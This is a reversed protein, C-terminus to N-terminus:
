PPWTQYRISVFHVFKVSSRGYISGVSNRNMQSLLKLPSSKLFDALWFCPNGRAAMNALPDSCFSCYKYLDKWVHKSGLKLENPLSTESYFILILRVVSLSRWTIVFAWTAKPLTLYFFNDNKLKILFFPPPYILKTVRSKEFHPPHNDGAGKGMFHYKHLEFRIASEYPAESNMDTWIKTTNTNNLWVIKLKWHIRLKNDAM